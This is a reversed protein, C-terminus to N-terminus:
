VGLWAGDKQKKSTTRYNGWVMDQSPGLVPRSIRKHYITRSEGTVWALLILFYEVGEQGKLWPARQKRFKERVMEGEGGRYGRAQNLARGVGWGAGSEGKSGGKIVGGRM